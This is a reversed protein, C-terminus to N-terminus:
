ETGFVSSRAKWEEWRIRPDNPFKVLVRREGKERLKQNARWATGGFKRVASYIAKIKVSSVDFDRMALRFIEDADARTRTQVWYLYDHLIAAYVYSGDPPLVSWFIKPISAFDTVFGKPVTVQSFRHKDSANPLWSIPQLLFYISERFRSIILPGDPLRLNPDQPNSRLLQEMWSEM